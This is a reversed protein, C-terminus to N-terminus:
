NGTGGVTIKLTDPQIKYLSGNKWGLFWLIGQEDIVATPDVKGAWIAVDFIEQLSQLEQETLNKIIDYNSLRMFEKIYNKRM